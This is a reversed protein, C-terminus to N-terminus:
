KKYEDVFIRSMGKHLSIYYIYKNFVYAMNNLCIANIIKEMKGSTLNYIYVTDCGNLNISYILAKDNVPKLYLIKMDTSFLTNKKGSLMDLEIINNKDIINNRNLYSIYYIKNGIMLPYSNNGSETIVKFERSKINFTYIDSTLGCYASFIFAENNIPNIDRIFVMPILLSDTFDNKILDFLFIRSGNKVIESVAIFNNDLSVINNFYSGQESLKLNIEKVEDRDKLLFRYKDKDKQLIVVKSEGIISFSVDSFKDDRDILLRGNNKIHSIDKGKKQLFLNFGESIKNISEGTINSLSQFFGNYYATDKLSQIFIKKGYNSIAYYTFATYIEQQVSENLSDMNEIDISSLLLENILDSLIVNLHKQEIRSFSILAEIFNKNIQTLGESGHMLKELYLFFINEYISKETDFFNEDAFINIRDNISSSMYKSRNNYIFVNVREIFDTELFSTIVSNYAEIRTAIAFAYAGTEINFNVVFHDTILIKDDTSAQSIKHASLIIFILFLILIPYQLIKKFIKVDRILGMKNNAQMIVYDIEATILGM